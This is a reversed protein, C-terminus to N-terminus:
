LLRSFRKTFISVRLFTPLSLLPYRTKVHCLIARVRRSAYLFHRVANDPFEPTIKKNESMYLLEADRRDLFRMQFKRTFTGVVSCSAFTYCRIFANKWLPPEIMVLVRHALVQISYFTICSLLQHNRSCIKPPIVFSIHHLYFISIKLLTIIIIVSRRVTCLLSCLITYHCRENQKITTSIRTHRSVSKM